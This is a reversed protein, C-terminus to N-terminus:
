GRLRSILRDMDVEAALSSKVAAINNIRFQIREACHMIKDLYKKQEDNLSEAETQLFETYGFIGSLWNNIEHNAALCASVLPTVARFLKADDIENYQEPLQGSQPQTRGECSEEM